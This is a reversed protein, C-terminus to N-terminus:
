GICGGTLERYTGVVALVTGCLALVGVMTGLSAMMFQM